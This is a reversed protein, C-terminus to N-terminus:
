MQFPAVSGFKPLSLTAGSRELLRAKGYNYLTADISKGEDEIDETTKLQIADKFNKSQVESLRGKPGELAAGLTFSFAM